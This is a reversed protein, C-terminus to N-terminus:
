LPKLTFQFFVINQFPPLKKLVIALRFIYIYRLDQFCLKLPCHHVFITKIIPICHKRCDSMAGELFPLNDVTHLLQIGLLVLLLRCILFQDCLYLFIVCILQHLGFALCSDGHLSNM